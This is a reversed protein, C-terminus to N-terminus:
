DLKNMIVGMAPKPFVCISREPMTEGETVVARIQEAKVANMCVMCQHTGKKLEGIGDTISKTYTVREIYSEEMINFIDELILKNLVIVDLSRYSDSVDPLLNKLYETDTLTLRYFYNKGTYVAFRNMKRTTAIQKKITDVMEGLETDVIIKEIKFHDQAASVFFDERFGKPFRLLRHFPVQMLGDDYANSLLTMIYNYSEDGTHNPNKAKREEAYNLAVEYRNQGDILFFTHDKLLSLIYQVEKEDDIIWLRQETGNDITCVTDPTRESIDEMFNTIYKESEIYMCNIMSVNADVARILKARDRNKVASKECPIVKKESPECLKMEVVFGRNSYSSHNYELRQEYMYIAKKKDQKIIEDQLWQGFYNKARTFVNNEENDDEYGLGSVVRVINHKDLSYLEHREEDGISDYPPTMVKGMDEIKDKNYRCGCFPRILTM